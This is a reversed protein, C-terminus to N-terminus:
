KPQKAAGATPFCHRNLIGVLRRAKDEDVFVECLLQDKADTIHYIPYGGFISIGKRAIKFPFEFGEMLGEGSPGPQEMRTM